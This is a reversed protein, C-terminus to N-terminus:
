GHSNHFTNENDKFEKSELAAKKGDDYVQGSYTLKELLM